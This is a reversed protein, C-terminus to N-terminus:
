VADCADEDDEEALRCEECIGDDDLLDIDTAEDCRKCWDVEIGNLTYYYCGHDFHKVLGDGMNSSYSNPYAM